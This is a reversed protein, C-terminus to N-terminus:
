QWLDDLRTQKLHGDFFSINVAGPLPASAPWNEPVRNPHSGHRAILVMEMGYGGINHSITGSPSFPPGDTALPRAFLGVGDALFPTSSPDGVRTETLFNKSWGYRTCRKM